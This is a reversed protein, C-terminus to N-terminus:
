ENKRYRSPSVGTKTKFIRSFYFETEFGLQYSIETMTLNTEKLLRCAKDIRIGLHYQGPSVGVIEKFSKRFLPYSMNLERAITELDVASNIMEHLKFRASHIIKNKSIRDTDTMIASAYTLGLLQTILCAALQRYAIGEYKVTEILRIFVNLLESSQGIHIFPSSSKFCNQRM